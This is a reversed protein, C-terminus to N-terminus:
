HVNQMFETSYLPTKIEILRVGQNETVEIYSIMLMIFLILCLLMMFKCYSKKLKEMM